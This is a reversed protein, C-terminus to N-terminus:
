FALIISFCCISRDFICFVVCDFSRNGRMEEGEVVRGLAHIDAESDSGRPLEDCASITGISMSSLVEERLMMVALVVSSYYESSILSQFRRSTHHLEIRSM